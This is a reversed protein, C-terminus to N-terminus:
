TLKLDITYLPKEWQNRESEDFVLGYQDIINRFGEDTYIIKYRGSFYGADWLGLAKQPDIGVLIAATFVINKDTPEATKSPYMLDQVLSKLVTVLYHGDSLQLANFGKGHKRKIDAEKNM